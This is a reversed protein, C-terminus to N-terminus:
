LAELAYLRQLEAILAHRSLGHHSWFRKGLTHHSNIGTTHHFRCLPVCERDSCKQGLGRRGVHACETLSRQQRDLRYTDWADCQGVLLGATCVICGFCRIFARFDPDIVPGRRPKSRRRTLIMM